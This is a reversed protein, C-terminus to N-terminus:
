GAGLGHPLLREVEQGLSVRASDMWTEGSSVGPFMPCNRVALAIMDVLRMGWEDERYEVAELNEWSDAKM